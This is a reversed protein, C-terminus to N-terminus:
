RSQYDEPFDNEWWNDNPNPPSSAQPPAPPPTPSTSPNTPMAQQQHPWHPQYGYSPFGYPPIGSGYYYNQTPQAGNPRINTKFDIQGDPTRRFTFEVPRKTLFDVILSRVFASLWSGFAM